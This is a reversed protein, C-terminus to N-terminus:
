RRAGVLSLEKAIVQDLSSQSRVRHAAATSLSTFLEPSEVMRAIGSALAQHDEPPALIGCTEDVFEPIAAVDNTVPVLGSSMAEDRSVDQSDMRTPCLFVGYRSHMEAIEGQKLFREEVTVNALNRLPAVTEDFLRGEGVIRFELQEFWDYEQLALTAKLTLDNAYIRSAFPRISLVRMRQEVPKPQYSFLKTDIPNHIIEYLSDPMDVGLDGIVGDALYRSVFVLKLNKPADTM